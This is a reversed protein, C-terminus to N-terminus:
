IPRVSIEGSSYKKRTGNQLIVLSGDDEVDAAFGRQERGGDTFLIESGLTICNERYLPLVASTDSLLDMFHTYISVALQDVLEMGADLSGATESIEAPFGREPTQMNIGIGVLVTGEAMRECLIGCVKRGRYILDNVWKIGTKKGCVAEIAQVSAVGAILTMQVSTDADPVTFTMYFGTSDPSYFSRGHSGKGKTQSDAVVMIHKEGSSVMSRAVDNTSTTSSLAEVEVRYGNETLKRSINKGDFAM